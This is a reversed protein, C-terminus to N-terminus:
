FENMVVDAQPYRETAPADEEGPFLVETVGAERNFMTRRNLVVVIVAIAMWLLNDYPQADPFIPNMLQFHYLYAILLSGRSVNFFPTLIVYVAVVGGFYPVFSWNSMPSGSLLFAPIHWAAIIAGIILGAWFPAFRRQLIPLAVGRWGFEEIPGLFLALALAPLVATWPSFPFPEGITGKIAAGTYVVAPIGLILFLWWKVPARWLTLRKFFSGLGAVGYHRWVLLVGAIGPAYVALIYLPNSMSIEGTIAVVQDYFLILIAAIGWTLGFSLALFPILTRMKMPNGGPQIQNSSERVKNSKSM